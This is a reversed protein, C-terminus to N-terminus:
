MSEGPDREGFSMGAVESEVAQAVREGLHDGAKGHVASMDSGGAHRVWIQAVDTDGDIRCFQATGGGVRADEIENALRKESADSFPVIGSVSVCDGSKRHFELLERARYHRFAQFVRGKVSVVPQNRQVVNAAIKAPKSDGRGLKMERVPFTEAIPRVGHQGGARM